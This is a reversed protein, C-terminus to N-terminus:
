CICIDGLSLYGIIAPIDLVFSFIVGKYVIEWNEGNMSIKKDFFIFIILFWEIIRIPIISIFFFLPSASVSIIFM